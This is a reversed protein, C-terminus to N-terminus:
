WRNVEPGVIGNVTGRNLRTKRNFAIMPRAKGSLQIALNPFANWSLHALDNSGVIDAIDTGPVQAGLENRDFGPASAALRNLDGIGQRDEIGILPNCGLNESPDSMSPHFRGEFIQM